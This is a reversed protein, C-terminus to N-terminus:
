RVEAKEDLNSVIQKIDDCDLWENPTKKSFDILSNVESKFNRKFSVSDTRVNPAEGEFTSKTNSKGEYSPLIRGSKSAALSRKNDSKCDSDRNWFILGILFFCTVWLVFEKLSRCGM